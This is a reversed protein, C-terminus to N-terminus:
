QVPYIAMFEVRVGSLARNSPSLAAPSQNNEIIATTTNSRMSGILRYGLGAGSCSIVFTPSNGWASASPFPFNGISAQHSDSNSPYVITAYAFVMNGTRTYGGSASSFNLGAGSADAPTWTGTSQSTGVSEHALSDQSAQERRPGLASSAIGSDVLNGDGDFSALDGRKKRSATTEQISGGTGASATIPVGSTGIQLSTGIMSTDWPRLAAWAVDVTKGSEVAAFTWVAPEGFASGTDADCHGVQWTTSLNMKVTCLSVFVSQHQAIGSTQQQAIQATWGSVPKSGRAKVYFRVKGAPFQQGWFTRTGDLGIMTYGNSGGIRWAMGTESTSDAVVPIPPGSNLAEGPWIWLDEGNFYSNLAGKDIFDHTRNMAISGRSLMAPGPTIAMGAFQARAVPNQNSPNATSTTEWTNGFGTIRYAKPGANTFTVLFNNLNGAINITERSALLLDSVTSRNADWQLITGSGPCIGNELESVLHSYGAIRLFIANQPAKPCPVGASEMEPVDIHWQQAYTELGYAVMIQPGYLTNGFQTDRITDFGGDYSIFGYPGDIYLQDFINFDGMGTWMTRTPQRTNEPAFVFPFEGGVTDHSWRVTQPSYNAQFFFGCTNNRPNNDVVDVRVNDFVSSFIEIDDHKLYGASDDYAFGCNGITQDVPLNDLAVYVRKGSVTNSATTALTVRGTSIYGDVTTVLASGGSGAGAVSINQGVDGPQFEATNSTLLASGSTIAGDYVTRGPFRNKFAQNLNSGGSSSADVSDDVLVTLDRVTFTQLSPKFDSGAPDPEEFVDKGPAGRIAVTAKSTYYDRAGQAGPPGYMSVGRPNVTGSVYYVTQGNRRGPNTPFYVAGGVLCAADFAKQIAATNDTCTATNSNSGTCDGKAGYAVVNFVGNVSADVTKAAVAGPFRVVNTSGNGTSVAGNAPLSATPTQQQGSSALAGYAALLLAPVTMAMAGRLLSKM